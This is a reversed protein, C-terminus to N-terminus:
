RLQATWLRTALPDAGLVLYVRDGVAIADRVTGDPAAFISWGTESKVALTSRGGHSFVVGPRGDATLLTQTGGDVALGGPLPERVPEGAGVQWLAVQGDVYGSVWCVQACRATLAESREGADPLRTVSWTASRRPWTWV